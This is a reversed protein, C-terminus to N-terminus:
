PPHSTTWVGVGMGVGLLPPAGAGGGERCLVRELLPLGQCFKQGGRRSHLGERDLYERAPIGGRYAMTFLPLGHYCKPPLPRICSGREVNRRASPCRIFRQPHRRGGRPPPPTLNNVGGCVGRPVPSSSANSWVLNPSASAAGGLDRPLRFSKGVWQHPSGECPTSM